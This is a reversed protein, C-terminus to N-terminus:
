ASGLFPTPKVLFSLVFCFTNAHNENHNKKCKLYNTGNIYLLFIYKYNLKKQWTSSYVTLM